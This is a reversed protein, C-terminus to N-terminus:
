EPISGTPLNAPAEGRTSPVRDLTPTLAVKGPMHFMTALEETTFIKSGGAGNKPYFARLRYEKLEQKKLAKLEKQKGGPIVTKYGFDTRWRVGIENRGIMDYQSFSRIIPNIIDGDFKGKKTIYMWRIATKYAYKSMNREIAAITDKEGMTLMAMQGREDDDGGNEDKMGLPVKKKPDRNMIKNIMKEAGATWDPGEALTLQGNKFSDKRFSKAIIQVFVREYPKIGALVELMPTIPDLKEEEKPLKDLGYDIYTKIPLEQDRKKGMHFSMLEFDEKEFDLPIEAAYDIPDEMVEIGPYQAYLNAELANKTKKTPTNVYFRIEGGISVIEFSFNLPRKGDLYTQMLNDPNATNHIQSIVFEMAEPSKFVDQPLRLRLTTRGQSLSFSTGVVEMWKEYFLLFLVIPLWLPTLVFFVSLVQGLSVGFIILSVALLLFGIAAVLPGYDMDNSSMWKLLSGIVPVKKKGSADIFKGSLLLGLSSPPKKKEEAM